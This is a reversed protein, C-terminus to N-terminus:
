AAAGQAATAPEGRQQRNYDLWAVVRSPLGGMTLQALLWIGLFILMIGPLLDRKSSMIM